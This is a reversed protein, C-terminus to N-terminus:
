QEVRAGLDSILLDFDENQKNGYVIVFGYFLNLIKNVKIRYIGVAINWELM